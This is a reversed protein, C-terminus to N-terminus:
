KVEKSTKAKMKKAASLMANAENQSIQAVQKMVQKMGDRIVQILAQNIM